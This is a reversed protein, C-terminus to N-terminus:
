HVRERALFDSIAAVVEFAGKPTMVMGAHNTNQITVPGIGRSSM